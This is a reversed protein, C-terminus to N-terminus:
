PMFEPEIGSSTVLDDTKGNCDQNLKYICAIEATKFKEGSYEINQPFLISKLVKLDEVELSSWKKYLDSLLNKAFNFISEIDTEEIGIVSKSIELENIDTKKKAIYETFDDDTMKGDLRLQVLKDKEEKLRRIQNNIRINEQISSECEDKYAHLVTERLVDFYKENPTLEKLFLSFKNEVDNKSSAHRNSCDKNTCGYYAYKKNRGMTWGGTLNKGCLACRTGRLPFDPNNRNRPQKVSSRGRMILQAKNFESETIIAEFQGNVSIDWNPVEIKGAYLPNSLIKKVLSSAIKCEYRSRFETQSLKSALSRISYVGKIYESFIFKIMSYKKPDPVMIKRGAKDTTNLYGVPAKWAWLGNLLRTRMGSETRQARIDNDFEAVASLIGEMFKGSPDDTIPDAVCLLTIGHKNLFGKIGWYDGKSRSLRDVKYIILYGIKKTNKSCYQLMAKLETRNATKASEGEERFVKIVQLNKQEALKRCEREQMELSFNEVQEKSSVRIYIIATLIKNNKNKM